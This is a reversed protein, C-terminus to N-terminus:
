EIKKVIKKKERKKKKWKPSNRETRKDFKNKREFRILKNWQVSKEKAKYNM